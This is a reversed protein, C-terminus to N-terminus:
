SDIGEYAIAFVEPSFYTAPVANELQALIGADVLRKVDSKATPYTISLADRVDTVRVFPSVFLSEVIQNLRVHGGVERLRQAFTERLARLRDCREVTANAQAITAMLCFEIWEGWSGNASVNFLLDCYEDRHREFYESLFLWPKTLGCRQQMMIAM